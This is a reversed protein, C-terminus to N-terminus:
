FSDVKWGLAESLLRVSTPIYWDCSNYDEIRFMADKEFKDTWHKNSIKHKGKYIQMSQNDDYIITFDWTKLLEVIEKETKDQAM